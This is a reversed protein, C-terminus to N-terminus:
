SAGDTVRSPLTVRLAAAWVGLSCWYWAIQLGETMMFALFMTAIAVSLALAVREAESHRRGARWALAVAQWGLLGLAGGFLAAGVVGSDHLVRVMFNTLWAPNNSTNVYRQGFSGVGLGAVPHARWDRIAQKAFDWRVKLSQDSTNSISSIRGTINAQGPVPTWVPGPFPTGRTLSPPTPRPTPTPPPTAGPALTAAPTPTPVFSLQRETANAGRFPVWLLASGLFAAAGLVVMPRLTSVSPAPRRTSPAPARWLRLLRLAVALMLGLTLGIWATRTFSVQVALLGVLAASWALWRLRTGLLLLTFGTLCLMMMASGFFNAEYFTGAISPDGTVPNIQLGLNVDLGQFVLHSLLGYCGVGVGILLWARTLWLLRGTTRTTTVLAFYGFAVILLMVWLKASNARDDANLLGGVLSWGLWALLLGDPWTLRALLRRWDPLLALGALPAALHEPKLSAGGLEATYRNLATAVLLTLLAGRVRGLVRWLAAALAVTLAILVPTLGGGLWRDSAWVAAAYGLVLAGACAEAGELAIRRRNAAM